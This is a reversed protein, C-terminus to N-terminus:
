VNGISSFTKPPNNFINPAIDPMVIFPTLKLLNIALTGYTLRRQIRSVVFASETLVFNILKLILVFTQPIYAENDSITM